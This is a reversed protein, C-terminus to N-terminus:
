EIGLKDIRYRLTRFSIGLKEATIMKQNKNEELAMEIVKKEITNLFEDLSLGKWSHKFYDPKVTTSISSPRSEDIRLKDIRYRLTRFSIGLLEATAQKYGKNIELAKLIANGEIIELYEDLSIRNLQDRYDDEVAYFLLFRGIDHEKIKSLFRNYNVGLLEAAEDERFNTKSLAKVIADRESEKIIEEINYFKIKNFLESYTIGLKQAAESMKFINKTAVEIIADRELKKIFDEVLGKLFNNLILPQGSFSENGDDDIPFMSAIATCLSKLTKPNHEPLYKPRGEDKYPDEGEAIMRIIKLAEQKDM